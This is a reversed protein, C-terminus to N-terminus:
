CPAFFGLGRTLISGALMFGTTGGLSVRKLKRKTGSCCCCRSPPAGYPFIYDKLHTDSFMILILNLEKIITGLIKKRSLSTRVFINATEVRKNSM